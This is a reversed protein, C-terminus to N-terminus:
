CSSFAASHEDQRQIHAHQMSDNLFRFPKAQKHPHKWAAHEDQHSCTRINLCPYIMM